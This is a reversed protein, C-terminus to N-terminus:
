HKLQIKIGIALLRLKKHKEYTYNQIDMQRDAVLISSKLRGQFRMTIGARVSHLEIGRVAVYKNATGKCSVASKCV